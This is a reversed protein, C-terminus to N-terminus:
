RPNPFSDKSRRSVRHYAELVGSLEQFAVTPTVDPPMGVTENESDWVILGNEALKPLITHVLTIEAVRHDCDESEALLTTLDEVSRPGDATLVDTLVVRSGEDSLAELLALATPSLPETPDVEYSSASSTGEGVELSRSSRNGISSPVATAPHVATALSTLARTMAITTELYLQTIALTM